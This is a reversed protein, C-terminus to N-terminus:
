VAKGQLIQWSQLVAGTSTAFAPAGRPHHPAEGDYMEAIHSPCSRETEGFLPEFMEYVARPNDYLRKHAHTFCTVLWPYVCGNHRAAALHKSSGLYTGCYAPHDPTLTRLGYPTVLKKEALEIVACTQERSFVTFPLGVAIVQNPRITPDGVVVANHSASRVTNKVSTDILVDYLHNTEECWFKQQLSKATREAYEHCRRAGEEKGLVEAFEAMIRLANHWLAQVEVAKGHRPTALWSGVAANMWTMPRHQELAFLLGDESDLKVGPAAGHMYAHLTELLLPYMEEVYARDGSARWYEYIAVFMWLTADLSDYNPAEPRCSFYNPIQGHKAHKLFLLLVEKALNFRGTALLLGPLAIMADRGWDPLRPYGALLTHSGQTMATARKILFHPAGMALQRMPAHPFIQGLTQTSTRQQELAQAYLADTDIEEQGEARRLPDEIQLIITVNEGARLEFEFASPLYVEESQWTDTVPEFLQLTKWSNVPYLMGPRNASIACPKENPDAFILLGKAHSRVLYSDALLQGTELDRFSVCPVVRLRTSTGGIMEYRVCLAQGNKPMWLSKIVDNQNLSFKFHPIGGELLFECRSEPRSSLTAGDGAADATLSEWKGNIFLAEDLQRIYMVRQLPPRVPMVLLAHHTQRCTGDLAGMAYGGHGNAILWERQLQPSLSTPQKSTM